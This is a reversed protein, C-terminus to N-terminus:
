KVPVNNFQAVPVGNEAIQLRVLTTARNDQDIFQWQGAMAINPVLQCPGWGVCNAISRMMAQVRNGSQDIYYARGAGNMILDGGRQNTV